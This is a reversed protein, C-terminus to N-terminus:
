SLSSVVAAKQIKASAPQLLGPKATALFNLLAATALIDAELLSSSVEEAEERFANAVEALTCSVSAVEVGIAEMLPM